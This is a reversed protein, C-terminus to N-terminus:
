NESILNMFHLWDTTLSQGKELHIQPQWGLIDQAKKSSFVTSEQSFLDALWSPPISQPVEAVSYNYSSSQKIKRANELLRYNSKEIIKKLNQFLVTQRVKDMVKPENVIAKVVDILRPRPIQSELALLENKTYSPLEAFSALLPTLFERWTTIGDNILFREGHAEPCRAALLIADILNNIFTYNAIGCGNEIWCFFGQKAMEVPMQTYTKGGPGYVCSPNLVVIRTNKSSKARKLCWQEMQAKTEGYEGGTSNYPWTEDVEAKTNPHGFVYMTSLVIVSEAEAEIAAEVINKTGEVTIRATENGDRGYALHFVYRAGKIVAKVQQYDLLDVIPLSVPFRAVSACTRYNRVPVTIQKSGLENLREILNAGIFGTGGTVVVSASDLKPRESFIEIPKITTRHQYAWEILSITSAAEEGNVYNTNNNQIINAFQLFQEVFCSEFTLSLNNITFPKIAQLRGSLQSNNSEWFCIDFIDKKLILKGLTGQFEITNRLNRTRSCVLHVPVGSKTELYFETDAEVGGAYDDQYKIPTLTGLISGIMDLYHVGIDALVGGNESRFFAGSDSLWQYSGGDEIDVSIVDGILDQSLAKRLASVSPLLRRVMGVALIRNVKDAQQALRICSSQTLALPKECLVHLGKDLAKISAEEHLWNPLAIVAADFKDETSLNDLFSCFDAQKINIKPYNDKIKQVISASADAIVVKDIYGLTQLAPLYYESVVAGGGLILLRPVIPLSLKDESYCTLTEQTLM